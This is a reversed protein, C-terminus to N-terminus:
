SFERFHYILASAAIFFMVGALVAVALLGYAAFCPQLGGGATVFADFRPVVASFAFSVSGMASSVPAALHGLVFLAGIGAAIMPLSGVSAFFVAAAGIVAAEGLSLVLGAILSLEIALGWIAMSVIGALGIALVAGLLVAEIGFFKGLVYAERRVPRSFIIATGGTVRERALTAHALAAALLLGAVVMTSPVIEASLRNPAGFLDIEFIPAVLVAACGIVVFAITAANRLGTKITLFTVAWM